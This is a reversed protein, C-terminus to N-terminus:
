ISMFCKNNYVMINKKQFTFPIYFSLLKLSAGLRYTSSMIVDCAYACSRLEIFELLKYVTCM